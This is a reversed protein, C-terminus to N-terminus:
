KHEEKVVSSDKKTSDVQVVEPKEEEKKEQKAKGAIATKTKNEKYWDNFKGPEDIVIKLQMNYHSAGCIKNCLLVYDFAPDNTIMRMSDTTITPVFHLQTTMGPVCNMQQRFHPFYASHIVDRSRFVFKVRKGKPLHLEGGPNVLFDDFSKEDMSDVGLPNNATIFKYNAFGLTNDDGSYRATWDFQKPYLEILMYEEGDPERTISNWTKLGFFIIVALVIGPVVTWLLELKHNEPYYTAKQGTRGHYKYAFWFLCANTVFFVLIIIIFNFDLLWDLEVGEESAAVPLLKDKYKVYQWICFAFFAILFWLMLRGNLRNDKDTIVYQKEGRMASSLEFIKMIQGAAICFLVIAILILFSM